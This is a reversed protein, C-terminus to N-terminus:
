APIKRKQKMIDFLVAGAMLAGQVAVRMTTPLGLFIIANEAVFVLTIGILIGLPSGKGGSLSVGGVVCGAIARFEWGDGTEPLGYGLEMTFLVGAVGSLLASLMYAIMRIKTVNIGAITAVERNDGTALLRRGWVTKKIVIFAIVYIAVMIWFHPQMGLYRTKAIAVFPSSDINLQYGKIFLYRAGGVMYLSGMTAVFDPVGFHVVLTGNFLGVLVCCLLAVLVAPVTSWGFDLILAATIIGGFGAVRGTSIDVNGTMLTFSSGLATIAIFPIQTFMATFNSLSLFDPRFVTTIAMIALLPILVTFEDSRALRKLGNVDKKIIQESM